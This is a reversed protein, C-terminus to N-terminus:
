HTSTSEGYLQELWEKASARHKDTTLVEREQKKAYAYDERMQKVTTTNDCVTISVGKGLHGEELMSGDTYGFDEILIEHIKAARVTSEFDTSNVWIVHKSIDASVSSRTEKKM